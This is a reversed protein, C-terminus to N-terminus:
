RGHIRQVVCINTGDVRIAAVEDTASYDEPHWRFFSIFYTAAEPQTFELRDRSAPPLIQANLTNLAYVRIKPSPDIELLKELAQRQSVGWYDMEFRRRIETLNAGALRNFYVNQLPHYRIMVWCIQGLCLAGILVGLVRAPVAFKGLRSAWSTVTVVGLISFYLISPYMFYLHRWGDYIVAHFILVEAIPATLMLLFAVEVTDQMLWQRPNAAAKWLCRIWGVGFLVLYLLPTTIAIWVFLYHWPLQRALVMHGFYLVTGEWPVRALTGFADLFNTWPDVWLLPWFAYTGVAATALWIGLSAASAQLRQGAVHLDWLRIVALAATIVPLLLGLIRIDICLACTLGHLLARPWTMKDLFFIMSALGMQMMALFPLDKPNYFAEAFIRPSLVLFVVGLLALRWDKFGRLLLWYFAIAGLYFCIFTELHRALIISRSDNLHLARETVVLAVDFASGYYREYHGDLVAQLSVSDFSDRDGSLIYHLNWMGNTRSREEDMSVGYNEFVALGLILLAAFFTHTWPFGAAFFHVPAGIDPNETPHQPGRHTWRDKHQRLMNGLRTGAALPM